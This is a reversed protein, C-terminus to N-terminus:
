LIGLLFFFIKFLVILTSSFLKNVVIHLLITMFFVFHTTKLWELDTMKWHYESNVLWLFWENYLIVTNSARNIRISMHPLSDISSFIFFYTNYHGSFFRRPLWNWLASTQLFSSSSQFMCRVLPTRLLHYHNVVIHTEHRHRLQSTYFNTHVFKM